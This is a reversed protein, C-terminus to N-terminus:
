SLSSNSILFLNLPSGTKQETNKKDTGYAGGWGVALSLYQKGDLLYTVPPAIVGSGVSTEWLSTGTVADYAVLKGEATGQFVLNGATTLVGANWPTEHDVRWKVQKAVPDWALLMGKPDIPALSDDLIPLAPDYGTGLNWGLNAMFGSSGAYEWTTNNGYLAKNERSPIYVLGADPNYAMPQWNHGGFYNPSIFANAEQYRSFDNEVPRGTTLNVERAWNVYTYPDASLLEGSSRDIVYFFGNKPAQMLVKREQGDIQLDALMIHQTATYDWTDGPTTQYYWVLEGSDANLAVISSLYLNDGGGPSRYIRNWPSGNGTGVYLLNLDPDFAMADWATGGGGYKWWEGDWTEAAVEMAKSEFPQSPDGPVTYFRWKM